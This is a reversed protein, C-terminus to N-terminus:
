KRDMMVVIVIVNLDRAGESCKRAVVEVEKLGNGPEVSTKRRMVCCM